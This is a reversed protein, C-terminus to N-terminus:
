NLHGVLSQGKRKIDFKARSTPLYFGVVEKM